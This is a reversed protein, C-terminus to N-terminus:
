PIISYGILKQLFEEKYLSESSHYSNAKGNVFDFRLDDCTM